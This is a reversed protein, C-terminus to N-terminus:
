HMQRRCFEIGDNLTRLTTLRGAQLDVTIMAQALNPRIGTLVVQAGLLEVSAALSLLGRAAYADVASCGTLDLIVFRRRENQVFELLRPALEGLRESSLDGIMPVAATRMGVDLIPASLMWIERRQQDVLEVTRSLEDILRGRAESEDQAVRRQDVDQQQLLVVSAGTVPDAVPTARVSHWRNGDLRQVQVEAQYVDGQQLAALLAQADDPFWPQIHSVDGFARLAAPNHFLVSGDIQHISVMLSTHRLAETARLMSPEIPTEKLTAQFLIALRGDDLTVPSGHLVMTTPKGRPYLTWDESVRDGRSIAHMYNDLRTRTSESPNSVDRALFEDLTAARWLELAPSNAWRFCLRDHDYVWVPLISGNLAQLRDALSLVARIYCM